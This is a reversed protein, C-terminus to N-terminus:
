VAKEVRVRRGSREYQAKIRPDIFAFALDVLLMIVSFAIALIIVSSRVASYDRQSVATTLYTGVGPISFVNEIIVTGGVASSFNDGITQILPIMANPLAYKNIIRRESLGKARATVVYDSRICELMGSRTQRATMALGHFMTCIVPLIWYVVGGTGHSPLLNLKLSFLIILELALWFNPVSVGVLAAVMCVRDQWGNQHIAATKGLPIGGATQVIIVVIAFMLTLPFRTKLEEWVAKGTIYSEGLDFKIFTQYLYRGLQVIYPDNLGLQDRLEDRELETSDGPLMSYTPDGPCFYMITFILIAVAIVVPIILLLRKIIYRIM